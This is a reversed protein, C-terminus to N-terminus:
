LRPGVDDYYETQQQEAEKGPKGFVLDFLM